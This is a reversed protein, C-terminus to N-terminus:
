QVILKDVPQFYYMGSLPSRRMFPLV